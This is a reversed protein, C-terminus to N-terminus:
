QHIIEFRNDFSRVFVIPLFISLIVAAATPITNDKKPYQITTDSCFFGRTFPKAVFHAIITIALVASFLDLLSIKHCFFILKRILLSIIDIIIRWISAQKQNPPGLQPPPLLPFNRRFPPPQAAFM